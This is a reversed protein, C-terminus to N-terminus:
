MSVEIVAPRGIDAADCLAESPLAARSTEAWLSTPPTLREGQAPLARPPLGPPRDRGHHRHGGARQAAHPPVSTHPVAPGGWHPGREGPRGARCWAVALRLPSQLM